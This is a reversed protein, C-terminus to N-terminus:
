LAGCENLYLVDLVVGALIIVARAENLLGTRRDLGPMHMSIPAIVLMRRRVKKKPPGVKVAVSQLPLVNIGYLSVAFKILAIIDCACLLPLESTKM